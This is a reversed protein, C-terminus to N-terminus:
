SFAKDIQDYEDESLPQGDERTIFLQYHRDYPLHYDEDLYSYIAVGDTMEAIDERWLGEWNGKTWDRAIDAITDYHQPEAYQLQEYDEPEEPDRREEFMEVVYGAPAAHRVRRSKARGEFKLKTQRPDEYVDDEDEDSMSAMEKAEELIDAKAQKFADYVAEELADAEATAGEDAANDLVSWIDEESMGLDAELEPGYEDKFNYEPVGGIFGFWEEHAYDDGINKILYHKSPTAGAEEYMATLARDVASKVVDLFFEPDPAYSRLKDRYSERLKEQDAASLEPVGDPLEIEDIGMHQEMEDDMGFWYSVATRVYVAGRYMIRESSAAKAEGAPKLAQLRKEVDKTSKQLASDIADNFQQTLKIPDITKVKDSKASLEGYSAVWEEMADKAAAVYQSADKGLAQLLAAAGVVGISDDILNISVGYKDLQSAMSPNPLRSAKAFAKSIATMAMETPIAAVQMIKERLPNAETSKMGSLGFAEDVAGVVDADKHANIWMETLTKPDQQFGFWGQVKAEVLEYRAGHYRISAPIMNNEEFEEFELSPPTDAEPIGSAEWEQAMLEADELDAAQHVLCLTDDEFMEVSIGDPNQHIFAERAAHREQSEQSGQQGEFDAYSMLYWRGDETGFLLTQASDDGMNVYLAVQDNYPQGLTVGEARMGEVGHGALMRNAFQLTALVEASDQADQIDDFLREADVASLKPFARRLNDLTLDASGKLKKWLKSLMGPGKEAKQREKEEKKKAKEEDKLRQAEEQEQLKRAWDIDKELNKQVM